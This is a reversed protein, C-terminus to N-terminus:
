RLDRINSKKGDSGDFSIFLKPRGVDCSERAYGEMFKHLTQDDAGSEKILNMYWPWKM